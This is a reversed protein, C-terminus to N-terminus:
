IDALLTKALCLRRQIQWELRGIIQAALNLERGERVLRDSPDDLIRPGLHEQKRGVIRMGFPGLIRNSAELRRHPLDAFLRLLSKVAAVEGLHHTVACLKLEGGLDVFAATTRRAM